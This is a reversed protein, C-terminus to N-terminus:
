RRKWRTLESRFCPCCPDYARGERSDLQRQARCLPVTQPSTVSELHQPDFINGTGTQPQLGQTPLATKTYMEVVETGLSRRLQWHEMWVELFLEHSHENSQKLPSFPLLLITSKLRGFHPTKLKKEKEPHTLPPCHLHNSWIKQYITFPNQQMTLTSTCCAPTSQWPSSVAHQLQNDPHRYLMSSNITLTVVCSAPTSQWPSSVAQQLQTDERAEGRRVVSSKTM